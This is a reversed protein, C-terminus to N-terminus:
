QLLSTTPTKRDSTGIFDGAQVRKSIFLHQMYKEKSKDSAQMLSEDERNNNDQNLNRKCLMFDDWEAYNGSDQIKYETVDLRDLRYKVTPRSPSHSSGMSSASIKAM